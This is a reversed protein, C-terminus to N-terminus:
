RRLAKEREERPTGHTVFPKGAADWARFLELWEQISLTAPRRESDIGAAELLSRSLPAAINLGKGLSNHMQKRPAKFGAKVLRFFDSM